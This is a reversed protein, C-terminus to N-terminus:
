EDGFSADEQAAVPPHDEDAMNLGDHFAKLQAEEETASPPTHTTDPTEEPPLPGTGPKPPVAGHECEIGGHQAAQPRLSLTEVRVEKDKESEEHQAGTCEVVWVDYVPHEMASVSPTSAFMWGSFVLSMHGAKEEQVELYALSEPPDEPLSKRCSRATIRLKEFSVSEGTGVEIQKVHGTVKDLARLIVRQTVLPTRKSAGSTEKDSSSYGVCSLSMGCVLATVLGFFKSKMIHKTAKLSLLDKRAM